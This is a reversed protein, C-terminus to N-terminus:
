ASKAINAEVLFGLLLVIIGSAVLLRKKGAFISSYRHSPYFICAAVLVSMGFTFYFGKEQGLIGLLLVPFAAIARYLNNM